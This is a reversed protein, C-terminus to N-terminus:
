LFIIPTIVASETARHLRETPFCMIPLWHAPSPDPRHVCTLGPYSLYPHTTITPVAGTVLRVLTMVERVVEWLSDSSFEKGGIEREKWGDKVISGDNDVTNAICKSLNDVMARKLAEHGKKPRVFVEVNRM